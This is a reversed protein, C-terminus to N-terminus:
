GGLDEDIPEASYDPPPSNEWGPAYDGAPAAPASQAARARAYTADDYQRDEVPYDWDGDNSAGYAPSGGLDLSRLRGSNDIRCSFGAGDTLRGTVHWGEGSRSASDVSDVRDSGREIEGLCMDVANGMGGGYSNRSPNDDYRYRDTRDPYRTQPYRFDRNRYERERSSKSAASAIAAIGGIILVGALVDGADIRDRHRHRGWRYNQAVDQSSDYGHAERPLPLKAAALPTTSLSVAAASAAIKGLWNYRFAMKPM